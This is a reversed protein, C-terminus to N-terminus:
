LHAKGNSAVSVVLPLPRQWELRPFQMDQKESKCFSMTIRVAQLQVQSLFPHFLCRLKQKHVWFLAVTVPELISGDKRFIGLM